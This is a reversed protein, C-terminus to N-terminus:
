DEERGPRPRRGRHPQEEVDVEMVDEEGEAGQEEGGFSKGTAAQHIAIAELREEIVGLEKQEPSTLEVDCDGGTMIYQVSRRFRQKVLERETTVAHKDPRVPLRTLNKLIFELNDLVFADGFSRKQNREQDNEEKSLRFQPVVMKALHWVKPHEVFTCFRKMIRAGQPGQLGNSEVVDMFSEIEHQCTAADIPDRLENYYGLSLKVLWSQDNEM